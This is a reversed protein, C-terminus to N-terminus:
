LAMMRDGSEFGLCSLLFAHFVGKFKAKKEKEEKEDDDEGDDDEEDEDEDENMVTKGAVEFFSLRVEAGQTPADAVLMTSRTPRGTPRGTFQAQSM